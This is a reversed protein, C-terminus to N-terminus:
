ADAASEAIFVVTLRGVRLNNDPVRTRNRDTVLHPSQRSISGELFVPDPRGFLHIFEMPAIIADGDNAFPAAREVIDNVILLSFDDLLEGVGNRAIVLIEEVGNASM